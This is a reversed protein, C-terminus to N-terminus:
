ATPAGARFGWLARREELTLMRWRGADPMWRYIRVDVVSAVRELVDVTGRTDLDEGLLEGSRIDIVKFSAPGPPAEPLKPPRPPRELTVTALEPEKSPKRDAKELPVVHAGTGKTETDLRWTKAMDM